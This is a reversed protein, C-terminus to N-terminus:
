DTNRLHVLGVDVGCWVKALGQPYSRGIADRVALCEATLVEGVVQGGGKAANPEM